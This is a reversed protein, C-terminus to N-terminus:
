QPTSAESWSSVSPTQAKVAYASPSASDLVLREDGAALFPPVVQVTADRLPQAFRVIAVREAFRQPRWELAVEADADLEVTISAREFTRAKRQLGHQGADDLRERLPGASM